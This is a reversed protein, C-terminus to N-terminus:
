RAGLIGIYIAETDANINYQRKGNWSYDVTSNSEFVQDYVPNKEILSTLM